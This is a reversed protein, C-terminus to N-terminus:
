SFKTIGNRIIKLGIIVAVVIFTVITYLFFNNFTKKVEKQKINVVTSAQQTTDIEKEEVTDVKYVTKDKRTKIKKTVVLPVETKNGLSDVSVIKTEVITEEITDFIDNSIVSSLTKVENQVTTLEEDKILTTKEKKLTKCSFAIPILLILLKKM